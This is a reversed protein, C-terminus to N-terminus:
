IESDPIPIVIYEVDGKSKLEVAVFDTYDAFKESFELPVNNVYLMGGANDRKNDIVSIQANPYNSYITRKVIELSEDSM